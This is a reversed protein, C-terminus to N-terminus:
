PGERRGLHGVEASDDLPNPHHPRGGPQKPAARSRIQPAWRLLMASALRALVLGPLCGVVLLRLVFYGVAAALSASRAGPALLRSVVTHDAMAQRLVREVVVLALVGGVFYVANRVKV